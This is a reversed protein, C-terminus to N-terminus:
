LPSSQSPGIHGMKNKVEDYVLLLENVQFMLLPSVHRVCRIRM